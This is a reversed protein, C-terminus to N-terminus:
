PISFTFRWLGGELIDVKSSQGIVQFWTNGPKLPYASGDPFTLFLVSDRTPRNWLVEFIVGDRLAYARGNGNLIIDVIESNGSQSRYAYEHPAFLIVVNAAEIRQGTVKDILLAFSENEAGLAEATDQYRIYTGSASDYDWRNYSSISYRIVVQNAASGGSPVLSHFTMGSLDQRSNDMGKNIAYTTLEATNTVLYNFGNPDIRCMPPCNGYGEMVLRDAFDSNLFKNLIRRDAGGFALISKYMRVLSSDFLRGSRIPGVQDANQGYFIAHFRTLGNNQYYDFVIDALSIGMPPRQGRPFIQVKVSLPRRDILAPDSVVLGTLPNVNSPFDSPGYAIVTPSGIPAPTNSPQLTATETPPIPSTPLPTHTDTQFPTAPTNMPSPPVVIVCAGATFLLLVTVLIKKLM